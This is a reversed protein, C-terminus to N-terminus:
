KGAAVLRIVEVERATLGAEPRARALEPTAGLRRFVRQAADLEVEAADEDGLARCAAAILVRLRATEYPADLEQWVTRVRRLAALAAGPEGEALLVAGDARAAAARLLPADFDDAIEALEDAGRRAAP